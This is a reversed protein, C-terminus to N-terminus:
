IKSADRLKFIEEVAEKSSFDSLIESLSIPQFTGFPTPSYSKSINSKTNRITVTQKMTSQDDNIAVVFEEYPNYGCDIIIEDIIDINLM